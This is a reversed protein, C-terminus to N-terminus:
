SRQGFHAMNEHRIYRWIKVKRVLDNDKSNIVSHGTNRYRDSRLFEAKFEEPIRNGCAHKGASVWNFPKSQRQIISNGKALDEIALQPYNVGGLNSYFFSRALRPNIEFVYIEGSQPHIKMDLNFFGYYNLGRIIKIALGYLEELNSDILVIHNGIYQPRLDTLISRAQTMSFKDDTSRYGSISYETGHQGPICEQVVMNGQYNSGNDSDFIKDLKSIAESRNDAFYVKDQMTARDKKYANNDDAKLVLDGDLDINKYDSHSVIRTQPIKVGLKDMAQYFNNKIMLFKGLHQDPYPLCPEFDLKTLNEYVVEMYNENPIFLVVQGRGNAKERYVRNILNIFIEPRAIYSGEAYNDRFIDAIKTRYFPTLVRSCCINAKIGYADHISRAMAYSVPDTGLVIPIIGEM